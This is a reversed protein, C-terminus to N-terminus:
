VPNGSVVKIQWLAWLTDFFLLAGVIWNTWSVGNMGAYGVLWPSLFLWLGVLANLFGGLARGGVILEYIGIVLAAASFLWTNWAAPVNNWMFSYFPSLLLVVSLLINVWWWRLSLRAIRVEADSYLGKVPVIKEEVKEMQRM